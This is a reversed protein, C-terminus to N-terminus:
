GKVGSVPELDDVTRDREGATGPEADLDVQLAYHARTCCYVGM